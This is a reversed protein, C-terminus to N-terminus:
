TQDGLRRHLEQNGGASSLGVKLRLKQINEIIGNRPYAGTGDEPVLGLGKGDKFSMTLVNAHNWQSIVVLDDNPNRINQPVLSV